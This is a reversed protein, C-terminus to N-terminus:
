RDISPDFNRLMSGKVYHMSGLWVFSRAQNPMALVRRACQVKRCAVAARRAWEAGMRNM